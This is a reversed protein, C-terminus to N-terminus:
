AWSCMLSSIGSSVDMGYAHLKRIMLDHPLWDFAKSHGTLLVSFVRGQDIFERCEQIM